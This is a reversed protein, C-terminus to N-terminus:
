ALAKGSVYDRRAATEAADPSSTSRRDGPLVASLGYLVRRLIGVEPPTDDIGTEMSFDFNSEQYLAAQFAKLDTRSWSSRTRPRSAFDPLITLLTERSCSRAM